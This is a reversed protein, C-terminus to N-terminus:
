WRKGRASLVVPLYVAHRGPVTPKVEIAADAYTVDFPEADLNTLISRARDVTVPSRGATLGVMDVCFLTGSGSVPDSPNMQTMAVLIRGHEADVTNAQVLDPRLFSGLRVQIGNAANHDADVVRLVAPDYQIEMQFAYLEEVDHVQVSLTQMQEPRIQSTAPTLDVRVGLAEARAVCGLISLWVLSLRALLCPGRRGV